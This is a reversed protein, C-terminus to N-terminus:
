GVAIRGAVKSAFADVRDAVRQWGRDLMLDHGMEPFVEVETGYASAARRMEGSTFFGDVEAALVLVPVNIRRPHPLVWMTDIFALYSEDQLRAMCANVVDDPTDATFFLERVLAPTAIFPRLSWLLNTKLLAFPHRAGLRAVAALTGRRPIPAMLVGGAAPDDELYKQVVLGGLSHGVVVPPEAFEAAAGRVDEVYGRVRHWIRGPRGDHGRLQVARVDHGRESLREGFDSWWPGHWAGHVLLIASM